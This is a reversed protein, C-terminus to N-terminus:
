SLDYNNVKYKSLLSKQVITYLNTFKEIEEHIEKNKTYLKYHTDIINLYEKLNLEDEIHVKIDYQYYAKLKNIMVYSIFMLAPFDNSQVRYRGGSKSIILTVEAKNQYSFGIMNKNSNLVETDIYNSITLEKFITPIQINSLILFM